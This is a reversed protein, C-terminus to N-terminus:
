ICPTFVDIRHPQTPSFHMSNSALHDLTTPYQSSQPLPQTATTLLMINSEVDLGYPSTDICHPQTPSFHMSNSDLHDSITPHQSSQPRPQTTTTTFLMSNGEVDLVHPSTDIFPPQTPSFRIGSSDLHHLITPCESSQTQTTFVISDLEASSSMSETSRPQTIEIASATLEFSPLPPLQSFDSTSFEFDFDFDMHSFPQRKVLKSASAVDTFGISAHM